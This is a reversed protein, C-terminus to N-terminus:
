KLSKCYEAIQVICSPTVIDLNPVEGKSIKILSETSHYKWLEPKNSTYFCLGELRNLIKEGDAVRDVPKDFILNFLREATMRWLPDIRKEKLGNYTKEDIEVWEDDTNPDLNNGSTYYRPKFDLKHGFPDEIELIARTDFDGNKENVLFTQTYVKYPKKCRTYPMEIPAIENIIQRILGSHYVDSPNEINVGVERDLDTYVKEGNETTYRSIGSCRTCDSVSKYGRQKIWEPSSEEGFDDDTIPTLTIHDILQKLISVTVSYSYGSHGDNDLISEAASFAKLASQYCACGYDFSKGDWNPNERKCALETEKEAWVVNYPKKNDEM